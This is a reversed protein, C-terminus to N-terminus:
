RDIYLSTVIEEKISKLLISSDKMSMRLTPANESSAIEIRFISNVQETHEHTWKSSIGNKRDENSNFILRALGFDSVHANLDTDLLINSPNLDCHLVPTQCQHHVYYLVSAVDIAFDIHQLISLNKQQLLGCTEPASLRGLKVLNRRCINRLAKCEAIFSKSAGRQQLM